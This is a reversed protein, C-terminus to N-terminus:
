LSKIWNIVEHTNNSKIESLPKRPMMYKFTPFSTIGCYGVTYENKVYDCKYIPINRQKAEFAISACDLAKCPGCWSATFYVIFSQTKSTDNYLGEFQEQTLLDEM